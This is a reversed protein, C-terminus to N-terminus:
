NTVYYFWQQELKYGNDCHFFVIIVDYWSITVLAKDLMQGNCQLDKSMQATYGDSILNCIIM